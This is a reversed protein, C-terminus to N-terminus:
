AAVGSASIHQHAEASWNIIALFRSTGEAAQKAALIGDLEADGTRVAEPEPEAGYELGIRKTDAVLVRVLSWKSM